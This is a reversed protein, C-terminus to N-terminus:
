GECYSPELAANAAFVGFGEDSLDLARDDELQPAAGAERVLKPAM